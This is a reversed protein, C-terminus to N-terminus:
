FQHRYQDLPHAPSHRAIAALVTHCERHLRIEGRFHTNILQFLALIRHFCVILPARHGADFHNNPINLTVDDPLSLRLFNVEDM